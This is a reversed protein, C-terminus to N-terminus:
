LQKFWQLVSYLLIWSVKPIEQQLISSAFNRSPISCPLLHHYGTLWREFEKSEGIVKWEVNAHLLLIKYVFIFIAKMLATPLITTVIARIILLTVSMIISCLEWSESLHIWDQAKMSFSNNRACNLNRIEGTSKSFAFQQQPSAALFNIIRNFIIQEKNRKYEMWVGELLPFEQEYYLIYMKAVEITWLKPPCPFVGIGRQLPSAWKM